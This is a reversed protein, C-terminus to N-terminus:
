KLSILDILSDMSGAKFAELTSDAPSVANQARWQLKELFKLEEGGNISSLGDCAIELLELAYFNLNKGGHQAEFANEAAAFYSKLCEDYNAFFNEQYEITKEFNVALGKIFAPMSLEEGPLAADISRIEVFIKVKNAVLFDALVEKEMAELLDKRNMSTSNSFNLQPKINWFSLRNLPSQIDEVQSFLQTKEGNINVGVWAEENKLYEYFTPTQGLENQPVYLNAEKNKGVFVMPRKFFIESFMKNFSEYESKPMGVMKTEVPYIGPKLIEYQKIQRVSKHGSFQGDKFASNASLAVIVSMMRNLAKVFSFEFGLPLDINIQDSTLTLYEFHQWNRGKVYDSGECLLKYLQGKPTRFKFYNEWNAVLTPHSGTGLFVLDNIGTLEKMKKLARAFVFDFDARHENLNKYVDSPFEIEAYGTDNVLIYDRGNIESCFQVGIPKNSSLDIKVSGSNELALDRWFKEILFADFFYDGNRLSFNREFELGIFPNFDGIM